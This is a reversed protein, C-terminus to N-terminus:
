AGLCGYLRVKQELALEMNQMAVHLTQTYAFIRCCRGACFTSPHITPHSNPMQGNKQRPRPVHHFLMNAFFFVHLGGPLVAPFWELVIFVSGDRHIWQGRLLHYPSVKICSQLTWNYRRLLHRPDWLAWRPM